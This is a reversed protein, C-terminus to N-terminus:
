RQCFQACIFFGGALAFDINIFNREKGFIKLFSTGNYFIFINRAAYFRQTAFVAHCFFVTFFLATIGM